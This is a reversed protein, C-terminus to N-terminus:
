QSRLAVDFRVTADPVFRTCDVAPGPRAFLQRDSGRHEAASAQLRLKVRVRYVRFLDIDFLPRHGCWPGDTLVGQLLQSQSGSWSRSRDPCTVQGSSLERLPASPSGFYQFSLAVVNDLVPVDTLWGDHHRIQRRAHDFYYSHVDVPIISSGAPYAPLGRGEMAVVSIADGLVDTVRLLDSRGLDDFILVTAGPRLGCAARFPQCASGARVPLVGAGGQLPADTVARTDLAPTTILTLADAEFRGRGGWRSPVVAPRLPGGLPDTIGANTAASLLARHLAVFGVRARQYLDDNQAHVALARHAPDLLSMTTGVVFATLALALVIESVTM